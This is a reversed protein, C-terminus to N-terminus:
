LKPRLLNQYQLPFIMRERANYTNDTKRNNNPSTAQELLGASVADLEALLMAAGDFAPPPFAIFEGAAGVVGASVFAGSGCGTTTGAPVVRVTLSPSDTPDFILVAPWDKLAVSAEATVTAPLAAIGAPADARPVTSAFGKPL